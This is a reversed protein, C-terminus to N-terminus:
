VFIVDKHMTLMASGSLNESKKCYLVYTRVPTNSNVVDATDRGFVM